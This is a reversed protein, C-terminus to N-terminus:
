APSEPMEDEPLCLIRNCNRCLVLDDGRWILNIEHFTVQMYCGQCIRNKVEVVPNRKEKALVREYKSLIDRPVHSAIERRKAGVAAAEDDIKSIDEQIQAIERGSEEERQKVDQRSAQVKDKDSDLEALHSLISDELHSIKERLEKRKKKFIRLEENTKATNLQAGVKKLEAETEKLLIEDRHEQHSEDKIRQLRADIDDKLNQLEAELTRIKSQLAKKKDSLTALQEDTESLRKLHNMVEATESRSM